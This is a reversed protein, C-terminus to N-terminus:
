LTRCVAIVLGFSFAGVFLVYASDTVLEFAGSLLVRGVGRRTAVGRIM